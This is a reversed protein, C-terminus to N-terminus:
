RHNCAVAFMPAARVDEIAHRLRERMAEVDSDQPEDKPELEPLTM